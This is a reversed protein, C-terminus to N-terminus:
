GVVGPTLRDTGNAALFVVASPAPVAHPTHKKSACIAILHM